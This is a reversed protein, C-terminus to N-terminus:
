KRLSDALKRVAEADPADPALKLYAVLHKIAEERSGKNNAIQGLALHARVARQEDLELARKFHPEASDQDSDLLAWGLYLHAAWSTEQLRLSEKLESAAEPKRSLNLLVIGYETRPDPKNPAIQKLPELVKAAEDYNKQLRLERGLALRAAYYKPYIGIAERLEAVARASDGDDLAKMGDRYHKQAQKPVVLDVEADIVGIAQRKASKLPIDLFVMLLNPSPANPNPPHVSVKTSTAELLDTEYTEILYDGERLSTFKFQGEANTFTETIPRMDSQSVLRVHINRLQTGRSRVRGEIQHLAQAQGVESMSFVSALVVALVIHIRRM